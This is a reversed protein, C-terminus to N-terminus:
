SEGAGSRRFQRATRRFQVLSPLVAILLEAAAPKRVLWIPAHTLIPIEANAPDGTLIITPVGPGLLRSVSEAVETGTSQGQPGDPGDLHYDVILVDLEKRLFQAAELASRASGAAHSQFGALGLAVCLSERADADDEVYLVVGAEGSETM